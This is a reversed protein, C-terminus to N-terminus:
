PRSSGDIHHHTSTVWANRAAPVRRNLTVTAAPYKSRLIGFLTSAQRRSAVRRIALYGPDSHYFAEVAYFPKRTM